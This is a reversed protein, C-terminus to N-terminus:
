VCGTTYKKPVYVVLQTYVATPQTYVPYYVTTTGLVYHNSRIWLPSHVFVVFFMNQEVKKTHLTTQEFKRTKLSSCWVHNVKRMLGNKAIHSKVTRQGLHRTLQCVSCPCATKERCPRLMKLLGREHGLRFHWCMIAQKRVTCMWPALLRYSCM